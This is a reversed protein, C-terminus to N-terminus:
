KIGKSRACYSKKRKQINSKIRMNPDGFHIKKGEYEVVYTKDKRPSYKINNEKM